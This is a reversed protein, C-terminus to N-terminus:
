DIAINDSSFEVTVSSGADVSTGAAVSQAFAKVGSVDAPASFTVNIGSDVALKNVESISRGIFNPVKVKSVDSSKDTYLVIVGNQPITQGSAPTQSVVTDGSGVVRVTFGENRAKQSASNVSIGTLAPASKSLRKLEEATYQRDVNLYELTPSLVRKAIPAALVGGGRYQGYPNDVGVLVAVKPDDAPAFCVFSAVYTEKSKDKKDLKQATATKGAVRFGEIYANKGTGDKEEVVSEMMSRVTAATSESIVRRKVTPETKSIVNGDSDVISDVLYPVMLKGGNAIACTATILQLPSVRFSQGFSTSALDVISMKERNHVVPYAENALDIGTRETFGFAEFYKYYKEVGLRQGLNIYYCNCSKMLGLRMTETGHARFNACHYVTDAVKISSNCTYTFSETAVGEELAASATFIKFTSGPEFNNTVCFSGWQEYLLESYKLNYEETGPTLKDLDSTDVSENLVGPNNLDFDPKDAMALIAGTDVDMVIGFVGDCPIEDRAQNLANELYSQIEFDLTTVVGNGEIPDYISEFSNELTRGAVDTATLIRGSEGQLVDDYYAELGTRGEGDANIVGIITSAFNGKTYERNSDSTYDFFLKPNITAEKTEPEGSSFLKKDAVTYNYKYKQAFFDELELREAGTIKRKVVQYVSDKKLKQLLEDKDIDLIESIGNAVYEYFGQANESRASLKRKIEKPNVSLTWAATSTAIPTMNRDYITGRIPDITTDSLQSEAAIEKYEEGHVIMIWAVRGLDFVFILCLFFALVIMSRKIFTKDTRRKVKDKYFIKRFREKM